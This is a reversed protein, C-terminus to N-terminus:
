PLSWLSTKRPRSRPEEPIVGVTHGSLDVILNAGDNFRCVALCFGNQPFVGVLQMQQCLVQHNVLLDFPVIKRLQHAALHIRCHQLFRGSHRLIGCRLLLFGCWRFVFCRISRCRCFLWFLFRIECFIRNRRKASFGTKQPFETSKRSKKPPAAHQLFPNVYGHFKSIIFPINTHLLM